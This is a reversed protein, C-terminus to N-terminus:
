KDQAVIVRVRGGLSMAKDYYGSISYKDFDNISSLTTKFYKKNHWYYVEVEDSMKYINSGAKAELDDISTLYIRTLKEIKNLEEENFSFKSPGDILVDTFSTTTSAKEIGNLLYKYTAAEQNGVIDINCEELIGYKNLDGTVNKIILEDIESNANFSYYLVDSQYLQVGALRSPIVSTYEKNMLELINVDKAIKVSGIQTVSDNILGTIPDSFQQKAISHINVAGGDYSVEVVDNKVYDDADGTYEVTLERGYADLITAYACKYLKDDSDTTVDDKTDLVVGNLTDKYEKATFVGVISDDKGLLITIADGINLDGLTSFRYIMEKTGITYTNGALTISTPNLKNPSVKKLVGTVKDSYAWVKKLTESYYLVDYNQIANQGSLKDNRYISANDISFPLQSRWNVDAIIPGDMETNVVNMYDLEGNANMTYGLTTSYVTGTKMTAKMTNYFLNACDERTLTQKATKKINDDLKKSSYMAMRSSDANVTFDSDTYGLLGLVAYVAEQLTINKKPKFKGSIYGTMLNQKVAFEIYGSGKYKNTVDNFLRLSSKSNVNGKYTTMNVLMQAFEARTVLDKSDAEKKVDTKMIGLAEIVKYAYDADTTSAKATTGVPSTVIVMTLVLLMLLVRKIM